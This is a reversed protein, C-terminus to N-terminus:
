LQPIEPQNIAQYMAGHVLSCRYGGVALVNRSGITSCSHTGTEADGETMWFPWELQELGLSLCLRRCGRLM